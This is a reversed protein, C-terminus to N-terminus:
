EKGKDTNLWPHLLAEKASIRKDPDAQLMKKVLDQLGIDYKKWDWAFFSVGNNKFKKDMVTPRYAVALEYVCIGFSWMDIATTVECEKENIEPAMYGTTGSIEPIIAGKEGESIVLSLGFDVLKVVPRSAEWDKHPCLNELKIDAHILRLSHIYALGQLADRVYNKFLGEEAM